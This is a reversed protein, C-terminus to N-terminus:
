AAKHSKELTLRATGQLDAWIHIVRFLDTFISQKSFGSMERGELTMDARDPPLVILYGSISIGMLSPQM